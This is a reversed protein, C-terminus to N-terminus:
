RDRHIIKNHYDLVIPLHAHVNVRRRNSDSKFHQIRMKTSTEKQIGYQSVSNVYMTHKERVQSLFIGGFSPNRSKRDPVARPQRNSERLQRTCLSDPVGKQGITWKRWYNHHWLTFASRKGCRWLTATVNFSCLRCIERLICM